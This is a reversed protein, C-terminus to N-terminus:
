MWLMLHLYVPRTHHNYHRRCTIHFPLWAWPSERIDEWDYGLWECIASSIGMAVSAVAGAFVALAGAFAAFLVFAAVAVVIGAAVAMVIIVFEM